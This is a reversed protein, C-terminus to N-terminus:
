RAGAKLSRVATTLIKAALTEVHLLAADNGDWEDSKWFVAVAGDPEIQLTFKEPGPPRPDDIVLAHDVGQRTLFAKIPRLAVALDAATIDEPNFRDANHLLNMLTAAAKQPKQWYPWGDSNSNTWTVLRSLVRAGKALNPTDDGFRRVADDVDHENMWM